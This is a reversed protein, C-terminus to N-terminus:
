LHYRRMAYSPLSRKRRRGRFSLISPTSKSSKSQLFLPTRIESCSRPVDDSIAAGSTAAGRGENTLASYKLGRAIQLGPTSESIISEHSSGYVSRADHAGAMNDGFFYRHEALTVSSSTLREAEFFNRAHVRSHARHPLLRDTEVDVSNM